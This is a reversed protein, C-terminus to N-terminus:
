FDGFVTRVVPAVASGLKDQVYESLRAQLADADWRARGLLYQM